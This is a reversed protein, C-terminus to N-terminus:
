GARKRRSNTSLISGGARPKAMGEAASPRGGVGRAQEQFDPQVTVEMADPGGALEFRGAAFMEGQDPQGTEDGGSWWLRQRKQRSLLFARRATKLCDTWSTRCARAPGLIGAAVVVVRDFRFGAAHFDVAAGVAIGVVGRGHGIGLGSHDHGAFDRAVFVVAAAHRLWRCSIMSGHKAWILCCSPRRRQVTQPRSCTRVCHTM